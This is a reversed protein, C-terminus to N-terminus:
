FRLKITIEYREDSEKIKPSFTKYGVLLGDEDLLAAESIYAGNLESPEIEGRGTVSLADEKRIEALPKRLLENVLATREPLPAKSHLFADHGGDGFAMFRIPKSVAGGSMQTALRERFSNVTIAEAM